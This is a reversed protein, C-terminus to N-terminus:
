YKSTPFTNKNRRLPDDEVYHDVKPPTKKERERKALSETLGTRKERKEKKNTQAGATVYNTISLGIKKNACYIRVYVMIYQRLSLSVEHSM